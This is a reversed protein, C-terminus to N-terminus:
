AIIEVGKRRERQETKIFRQAIFDRVGVCPFSSLAFTTFASTTSNSRNASRL